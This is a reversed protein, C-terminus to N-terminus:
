NKEARKIIKRGLSIGPTEIFRHCLYSLLSTAALVVLLNLFFSDGPLGTKLFAYIIAAHILYISFSIRGLFVTLRNVIIKLPSIGLGWGLFLFGIGFLIHEPFYKGHLFYALTAIFAFIILCVLAIANRYERISESSFRFLYFLVFGLAFVPLQSPFYLFLYERWLRADSILSHHLFVYLLIKMVLFSIIFFIVAKALSNIYRFLIPLFLYFTMEVAVSWGGPVISNIWYPYFGNTFTFTSIINGASINEDYGLWYRPGMGDQWLYYIAALYFMPAIRFFSRIFYNTNPNRETKKRESMSYFLTFASMLYFLQVGRSGKELLWPIHEGLGKGCFEYTHIVIVGLVALGRLADVFDLKKITSELHIWYYTM